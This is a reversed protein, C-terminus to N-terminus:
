LQDQLPIDDHGAQQSAFEGFANYNQSTTVSGRRTGTLLGHGPDRTLSLAGAEPSCATPTTNTTSAIATTSPTPPSASSRPEVRHGRPRQRHRVVSHGRDVRRRLRVGAGRGRAHTIAAIRETPGAYSHSTEGAPTTRSALRGASDYAYDIQPGLAHSRETLARDLNYSRAIAGTQEAIAPPSYDTELDVPSYDM